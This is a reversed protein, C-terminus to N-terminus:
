DPRSYTSAHTGGDDTIKFPLTNPISIADYNPHVIACIDSLITCPNANLNERL